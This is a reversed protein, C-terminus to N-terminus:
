RRRIASLIKYHSSVRAMQGGVLQFAFALCHNEVLFCIDRDSYDVDGGAKRVQRDTRKSKGNKRRRARPKNTWPKDRSGQTQQINNYYFSSNKIRDFKRKRTL